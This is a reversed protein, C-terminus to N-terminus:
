GLLANLIGSQAVPPPAPAPPPAAPKPQQAQAAQLIKGVVTNQQPKQAGPQTITAGGYPAPNAASLSGYQNLATQGAQKANALSADQQNQNNKAAAKSQINSDVMGAAGLALPVLVAPPM